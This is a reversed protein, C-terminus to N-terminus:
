IYKSPNVPTGNKRVEFHLHPGTSRGTNGVAGINQGRYVRDGAKVSFSSCHGYYTQYGNEHNIIIIKGYGDKWGAFTVKGGDAAVIPTGIPGAIDIGTHMRGWRRGFPSTLRGRTPTIFAGFALTKPREKIGQVIINDKPAKIIDESTVTTSAIVGDIKVQKAQVKKLGEEGEAKMKKDGKYMASTDEYVVNYPIREEYAINETTKVSILPKPLSLSITQGIQLNEINTGPNADQIQSVDIKFKESISWTTDGPQVSYTHLEHGGNKIYEVANQPTKVLAIDAQLKKIEVKQLFDTNISLTNDQKATYPQKILELVKKAEAESKLAVVLKGQAKIGYAEVQLDIGSKIKKELDAANLLESDPVHVVKFEIKQGLKIDSGLTKPVSRKINEIAEYVQAKKDVAGVAKGDIYLEYDMTAFFAAASIAVACTGAAMYAPMNGGRMQEPLMDTLRSNKILTTISESAKKAGTAVRNLLTNKM